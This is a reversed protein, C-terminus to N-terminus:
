DKIEKELLWASAFAPSDLFPGPSPPEHSMATPVPKRAIMTSPLLMPSPPWFKQVQGVGVVCRAPWLAM